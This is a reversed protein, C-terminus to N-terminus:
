ASAHPPEDSAQDREITRRMDNMTASALILFPPIDQGRESVSLDFMQGPKQYLKDLETAFRLFSFAVRPQAKMDAFAETDTTSAGLHDGFGLVDPM